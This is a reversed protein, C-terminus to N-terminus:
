SYDNLSSRAEVQLVERKKDALILLILTMPTRNFVTLASEDMIKFVKVLCSVGQGDPLRASLRAITYKCATKLM